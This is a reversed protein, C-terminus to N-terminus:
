KHANPWWGNVTIMNVLRLKLNKIHRLQKTKVDSEEDLAVIREELIILAALLAADEGDCIMFPKFIDDNNM